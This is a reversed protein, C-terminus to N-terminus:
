PTYHVHSWSPLLFGPRSNWWIRKKCNRDSKTFFSEETDGMPTLRYCSILHSNNNLGLISTKPQLRWLHFFLTESSDLLARLGMGADIYNSPENYLNWISINPSYKSLICIQLLYPSSDSQTQFSQLGRTKRVYTLVRPRTHWTSLPSFSQLSPHTISKKATLDQFIWPEQILLIDISNKHALHLALNHLVCGRGENAQMIIMPINKITSKSRVM